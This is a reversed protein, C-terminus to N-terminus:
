GAVWTAAGTGAAGGPGNGERPHTARLRTPWTVWEGQMDPAMDQARDASSTTLIM